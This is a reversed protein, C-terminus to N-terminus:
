RSFQQWVTHRTGRRTDVIRMFPYRTLKRNIRKGPQTRCGAFGEQRFDDTFVLRSRM